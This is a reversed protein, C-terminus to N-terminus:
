ITFARTRRANVISEDVVLGKQVTAKTMRPRLEDDADM